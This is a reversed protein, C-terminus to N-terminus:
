LSESLNVRSFFVAVLQEIAQSYDARALEYKGQKAYSIGRDIYAQASNLNAEQAQVITKDASIFPCSVLTASFLCTLAILLKSYKM